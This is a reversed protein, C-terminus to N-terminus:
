SRWWTAPATSQARLRHGVQHSRRDLDAYTLTLAQSIVAPADPTAAARALVADHLLGDPVPGDTANAAARVDLDAAPALAPRPRQWAAPDRSLDRLTRQYAAFMADVCGAPFLEEIVDWNLLLAGAEEVAQHDLWVQPTRVSSSVQRGNEGIGALYQVVGGQGGDQRDAINVLSTFVVPAAARVSAGRARNLERLVQVGSVQSHEMDSWLRRQVDAAQTAFTDIASDRIELMLTTSFQGIVDGVQPHLPLRNFYLLNLSFDPTASWEAIVQAYATCLAASPSVGAATAHQKFRDWDEKPLTAGRHNFM